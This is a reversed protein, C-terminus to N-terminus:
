PAVQLSRIYEVLSNIRASVREEAVPGGMPDDWINGWVPMERSGHGRVQSRGDITTYVLEEPFEGYRVVLATLDPPTATLLESVPGNGKADAGHCGQCYTSYLVAGSLESDAAGIPESEGARETCGFATASVLVLLAILSLISGPGRFSQASM